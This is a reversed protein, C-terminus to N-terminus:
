KQIITPQNSLVENTIQKIDSNEFDKGIEIEVKKTENYKLGVNFGKTAVVAIGAILLIIIVIILVKIKNSIKKM